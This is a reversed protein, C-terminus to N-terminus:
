YNYVNYIFFYKLKNKVFLEDFIFNINKIQPNQIFILQRIFIYM